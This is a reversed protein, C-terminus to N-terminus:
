SKLIFGIIILAFFTVGEILAASIIMATQINGAMEPQRAMSEVASKTLGGIGMAAGIIVLGAAFARLDAFPYTQAIVAPADVTQASAPVQSLLFLATLLMASKLFKM